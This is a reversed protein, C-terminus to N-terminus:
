LAISGGPYAVQDVGADTVGGTEFNWTGGPPVDLTASSTTVGLPRGVRNVPFITVRPSSVPVALGNTLTGRYARGGATTVTGLASVALGELPVIGDLNFFVFRHQLSGLEAIVVEAPLSTSAGMAIRGADICSLVTDPDLRYFRGTLLGIAASTLEQGAKDNFIIMVGTECVPTPGDNRVALYLEPGTAGQVLTLAVLTLAGQQGDLSTVPLDPVFLRDDGPESGVGTRCAGILVCAALVRFAKM